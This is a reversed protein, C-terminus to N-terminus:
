SMVCCEGSKGGKPVYSALYELQKINLAGRRVKRILSVADTHAMGADVLAIGVMLPARGLGAVCHVALAADMSLTGANKAAQTAKVLALWMVISESDPCTGDAFPLEQLTSM